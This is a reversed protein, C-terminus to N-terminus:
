KEQHNPNHHQDAPHRNRLWWGLYLVAALAAIFAIANGM